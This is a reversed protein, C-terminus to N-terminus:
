GKYNKICEMAYERATVLGEPKLFIRSYILKKKKFFWFEDIYHVSLKFHATEDKIYELKVQFTYYESKILEEEIVM